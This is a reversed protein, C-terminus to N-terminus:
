DTLAAGMILRLEDIAGATGAIFTPGIISVITPPGVSQQCM